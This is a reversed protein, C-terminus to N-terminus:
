QFKLLAQFNNFGLKQRLVIHYNMCEPDFCLHLSLPHYDYFSSQKKLKLDSDDSKEILYSQSQYSYSVTRLTECVFVPEQEGAVIFRIKGFVPVNEVEDMELIICDNVKYTTGFVSVSNASFVNNDADVEVDGILVDNHLSSLISEKSKLKGSTFLQQKRCPMKTNWNIFQQMQHRKM